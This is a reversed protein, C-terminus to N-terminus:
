TQIFRRPLHTRLEEAAEDVAKNATSLMVSAAPLQAAEHLKATAAVVRPSLRSTQRSREAVLDSSACVQCVVSAADHRKGLDVLRELADRHFVPEGEPPVYTFTSEVIVLWAHSLLVDAQREILEYALPIQSWREGSPLVLSTTLLTDVSLLAAPPRLTPLIAQIVSSKGTHSAGTVILLGGNLGENPAKVQDSGVEM